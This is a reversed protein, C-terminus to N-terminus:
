ATKGYGTCVWLGFRAASGEFKQRVGKHSVWSLREDSNKAGKGQAPFHLRLYAGFAEILQQHTYYIPITLKTEQCINSNKIGEPAELRKALAEDSTEDPLLTKIRNKRTEANIKFYPTDPWEPYDIFFLQPYELPILIATEQPIVNSFIKDSPDIALISLFGRVENRLARIGERITPAERTFEYHYCVRIEKDPLGGLLREFDWEKCDLPARNAKV